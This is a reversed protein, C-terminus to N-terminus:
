MVIGSQVPTIDVLDDGNFTAINETEFYIKKIEPLEFNM